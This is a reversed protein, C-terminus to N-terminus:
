KMRVSNYALIIIHLKFIVDQVEKSKENRHDLLM